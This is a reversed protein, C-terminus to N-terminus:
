YDPAHTFLTVRSLLSDIELFAILKKREEQKETVDKFDGILQLALSLYNLAEQEYNEDEGGEKKDIKEAAAAAGTAPGSTDIMSMVPAAPQEQVPEPEEEKKEEEPAAADGAVSAEDDEEVDGEEQFPRVTGLEDTHCLIYNALFDGAKFYFPAMITEYNVSVSQEKRLVVLKDMVGLARSSEHFAKEIHDLMDYAKAIQIHKLANDIYTQDEIKTEMPLVSQGIATLLSDLNVSLLNMSSWNKAEALDQAM